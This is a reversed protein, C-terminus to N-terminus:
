PEGEPNGCEGLLCAVLISDVTTSDACGGARYVVDNSDRYSWQWELEGPPCTPQRVAHTESCAALAVLLAPILLSKM